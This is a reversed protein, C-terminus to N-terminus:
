WDATYQGAEQQKLESESNEKLERQSHIRFIVKIYCQLYGFKGLNILFLGKGTVTVIQIASAFM